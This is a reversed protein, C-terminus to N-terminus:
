GRWIMWGFVAVSAVAVVLIVDYNLMLAEVDNACRQDRYRVVV